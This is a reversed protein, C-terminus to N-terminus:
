KRKDYFVEEQNFNNNHNFEIVNNKARFFRRLPIACPQVSRFYLPYFENIKTLAIFKLDLDLEMFFNNESMKGETNENQKKRNFFYYYSGYRSVRYGWGIGGNRSWKGGSTPPSHDRVSALPSLSPVDKFNELTKALYYM